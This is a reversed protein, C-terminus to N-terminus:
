SRRAYDSGAGSAVDVVVVVQRTRVGSAVAAVLRVPIARLGDASIHRVM